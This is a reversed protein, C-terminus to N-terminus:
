AEQGPRLPQSTLHWGFCGQPGDCLYAREPLKERYSKHEHIEAAKAMAQRQNRFVEKHACPKGSNSEHRQDWTRQREYPNRWAM